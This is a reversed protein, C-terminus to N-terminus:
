LNWKNQSRAQQMSPKLRPKMTVNVDSGNPMFELIFIYGEGAQTPCM